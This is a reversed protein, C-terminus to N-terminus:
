LCERACLSWDDDNENVMYGIVRLRTLVARHENACREPIM